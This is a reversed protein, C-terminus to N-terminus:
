SHGVLQWIAASVRVRELESMWQRQPEPLRRRLSFCYLQQWSRSFSVWMSGYLVFSLGRPVEFIGAEIDDRLMHVATLVHTEEMDGDDNWIALLCDENGVQRFKEQIKQFAKRCDRRANGYSAIYLDTAKFEPPGPYVHKFRLVEVIPSFGDRTVRLDPGKNGSPEMEVSFRLSAFVLAFRIEALYDALQERDAAHAIRSLKRAAGTMRSAYRLAATWYSWQSEEELRRVNLIAAGLLDTGTRNHPKQENSEM